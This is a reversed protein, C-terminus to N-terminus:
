IEIIKLRMQRIIELQAATVGANELKALVEDTIYSSDLWRHRDGDSIGSAIDTSMSDDIGQDGTPKTRRVKSSTDIGLDDLRRVKRIAGKMAKLPGRLLDGMEKSRSGPIKRTKSPSRAEARVDTENL